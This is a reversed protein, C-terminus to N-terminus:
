RTLTDDTFIFLRACVCVCVCMYICACVRMRACVFVRMYVFASVSVCSHAYIHMHVFVRERMSVCLYAHWCVLMFMSVWVCGLLVIVCVYVGM